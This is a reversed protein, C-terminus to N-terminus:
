FLALHVTKSEDRFLKTIVIRVGDKVIKSGPGLNNFSQGNVILSALKSQQGSVDSIIISVGGKRIRDGEQQIRSDLRRRIEKIKPVVSVLVQKQQNIIENIEFEYNDHQITPYPTTIGTIEEGDIVLIAPQGDSGGVDKCHIHASRNITFRTDGETILFQYPEIKSHVAEESADYNKSKTKM